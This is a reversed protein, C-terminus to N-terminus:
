MVRGINIQRPDAILYPITRATPPDLPSLTPQVTPVDALTSPPVTTDLTQQVIEVDIDGFLGARSGSPTVVAQIHITYNTYPPLGSILFETVDRGVSVATFGKNSIDATRAVDGPRYYM